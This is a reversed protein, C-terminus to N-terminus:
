RRRLQGRPMIKVERFLGIGLDLVMVTRRDCGRMERHEFEELM